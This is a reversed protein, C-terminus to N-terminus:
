LEDLSAGTKQSAMHLDRPPHPLLLSLSCHKEEFPHADCVSWRADQIFKM